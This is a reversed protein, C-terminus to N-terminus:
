KKPGRADALRRVGGGKGEDAVDPNLRVGDPPVSATTSTPLSSSALSPSASSSGVSSESSLDDSSSGEVQQVVWMLEKSSVEDSGESEGSDSIM